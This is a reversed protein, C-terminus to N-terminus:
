FHFCARSPTASGGQTPPAWALPVMAIAVAAPPHHPPACVDGGKGWGTVRGRVLCSQPLDFLHQWVSNDDDPISVARMHAFDTALLAKSDSNGM